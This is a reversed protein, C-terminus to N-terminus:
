VGMKYIIFSLCLFPLYSLWLWRAPSHCLRFTFLFGAYKMVISIINSVTAGLSCSVGLQAGLGVRQIGFFQHKRVTTSSFVRSLVRPLLSILGTLESLFWAQINILLLSALASAGTSQGGSTFLWSMLISPLLFPQLCFILHNSSMMSEISMLKLLSWSITFSLFAQSTETWPTVFLWVQGPWQVVVTGREGDSIMELQPQGVRNRLHHGIFVMHHMGLLLCTDPSSWWSSSVREWEWTLGQTRKGKCDCLFRFYGVWTGVFHCFGWM